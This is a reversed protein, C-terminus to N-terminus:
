WGLDHAVEPHVDRLRRTIKTLASTEGVDEAAQELAARSGVPRQASGQGQRATADASPSTQHAAVAGRGRGSASTGGGSAPGAQGRRYRAQALRTVEAVVPELEGRLAGPLKVSAKAIAISFASDLSPTFDLAVRALKSHEDLTRMQSWGGWQILRNARYIYFGQQRNWKLPGSARQWAESSSFEAQSPLVHPVVHVIGSGDEGTVAVERQELTQTSEGLCFPDWPDVKTGNVHISLHRGRVQGSLFRHFVMGLHQDVEEASALLKRRAWHGFTDQYDLVRDLEQWLVVTGTTEQLPEVVLPNREDPGIVLVEWRNTREIHDLDLCRAEVRARRPAIRSAVTVRRCQSTSATKLGLGFKGLDNAAYSRETGYRMAETLTRTDMGTGNDTVRIFPGEDLYRLDVAVETAGAGLSNDVLDAVAQPLEYGVDRLSSVTRAASPVVEEVRRRRTPTM